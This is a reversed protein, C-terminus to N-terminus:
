GRRDRFLGELYKGANTELDPPGGELSGILDRVRDIPREKRMALAVGFREELIQRILSSRSLKARQAARDLARLLHRPLRLSVQGEM